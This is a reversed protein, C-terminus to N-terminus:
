AAPPARARYHFSRDLPLVAVDTANSSGSPRSVVALAVIQPTPPISGVVEDHDFRDDDGRGALRANPATRVIEGSGLRAARPDRDIQGTAVSINLLLGFLVFLATVPGRARGIQRQGVM